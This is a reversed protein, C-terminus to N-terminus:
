ISTKFAKIMQLFGGHGLAPLIMVELFENEIFVAEWDHAVPQEAIRDYYPLPYVRGSSEQYVRKELFM